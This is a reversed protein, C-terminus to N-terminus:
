ATEIRALPRGSRSIYEVTMVLVAFCVTMLWHRIKITYQNVVRTIQIGSVQWSEGAIDFLIRESLEELEHVHNDVMRPWEFGFTTNPSWNKLSWTTRNVDVSFSPSRCTIPTYQGVAWMLLSIFLGTRSVIRLSLRLLDRM